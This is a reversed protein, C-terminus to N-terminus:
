PVAITARIVLSLIQSAASQWDFNPSSFIGVHLIIFPFFTASANAPVTRLFLNEAM